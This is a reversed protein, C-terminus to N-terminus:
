ISTTLFYIDERRDQKM